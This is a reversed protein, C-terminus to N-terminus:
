LTVNIKTLGPLIDALADPFQDKGQDELLDYMVRDMSFWAEVPEKLMGLNHLNHVTELDLYDSKDDVVKVGDRYIAACEVDEYSVLTLSM